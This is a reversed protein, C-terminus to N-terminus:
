GDGNEKTSASAGKGGTPPETEDETPRPPHPAHEARGVPTLVQFQEHRRSRNKERLVAKAREEATKKGSPIVMDQAIVRGKKDQVLRTFGMTMGYTLPSYCSVWALAGVLM